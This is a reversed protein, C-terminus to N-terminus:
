VKHRYDVAHNDRLEAVGWLAQAIYIDALGRPSRNKEFTINKQMALGFAEKQFFLSHTVNPTATAVPVNSSVFVEVGYITGIKGNKIAGGQGLADYRVFKDIALLQSLGSPAIVFYRDSDPADAENLKQLAVLINADTIATSGDGVYQSLGSYLALLSSDIAKAVSEGAKMRYEEALRLKAQASTRDHIEFATAYHKDIDITKEGETPVEPTLDTGPTVAVATMNQIEGIHIKDGYGSVESDYRKVLNAMVLKSDRARKAESSWVEPIYVAQNTPTMVTDAM